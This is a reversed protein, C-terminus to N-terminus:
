QRDFVDFTGVMVLLQENFHEFKWGNATRICRASFIGLTEEFLHAKAGQGAHYARVHCSAQASDGDITALHNGLLHHTKVTEVWSRIFPLLEARSSQTWQDDFWGATAHEVFLNELQSWDKRDLANVYESFLDEIERRDVLMELRDSM